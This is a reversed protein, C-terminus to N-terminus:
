ALSIGGDVALTQGTVFGCTMLFLYAQAIESVEATRGLPIAEAMSAKTEELQQPDLDRWLGTETWTPAVANVRVRPALEIALGKVMTAIAENGVTAGSSTSPSGGTGATFTLSGGDAIRPGLARAVELNAFLKGEVTERITELDADLFGGGMAGGLTSVVHDVEGLQEGMTALAGPATADIAAGGAAAGTARLESVAAELRERDRGVLVVRAGADAARRAVEFGFGSTGGIVLLRAGRLSALLTDSAPMAADSM